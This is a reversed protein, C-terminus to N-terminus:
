HRSRRDDGWTPGASKSHENSPDTSPLRTFASSASRAPDIGLLSGNSPLMLEAGLLDCRRRPVRILKSIGIVRELRSGACGNESGDCVTSTFGCPHAARNPRGSSIPAASWNSPSGVLVVTMARTTFQMGISFNQSNPNASSSGPLTQPM